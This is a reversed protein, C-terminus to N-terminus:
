YKRSNKIGEEYLKKLEEEVEEFEEKRVEKIGTSGFSKNSRKTKSLSDVEQIKVKIVPIIVLQAIRMGREIMVEREGLNFLVVSVEGRYGSDITGAVVHVNMKTVIGARDKIYGVCGEPVEIIIGCNVTKQEHPRIIADRAARLDLGVDTENIYEPIEFEKDLRKIRLVLKKKM